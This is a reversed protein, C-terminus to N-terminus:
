PVRKGWYSEIRDVISQFIWRQAKALSPSSSAKGFMKKLFGKGAKARQIQTARLATRADFFAPELKLVRNFLEIAYDYNQRGFAARGKEYQERVFPAVEQVTKEPM